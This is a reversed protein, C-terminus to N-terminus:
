HANKASVARGLKLSADVFLAIIHLVYGPALIIAPLQADRSGIPQYKHLLQAVIVSVPERIGASLRTADPLELTLLYFISLMYEM